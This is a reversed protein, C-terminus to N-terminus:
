VGATQRVQTPTQLGSLTVQEEKYGWLCRPEDLGLTVSFGIPGPGIKDM